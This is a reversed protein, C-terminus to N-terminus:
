REVDISQVELQRSPPLQTFWMLVYRGRSGAPLEVRQVADADTVTATPDGWAARQAHDTASVVIDADWGPRSTITIAGVDTESGLDLILGVGPKGGGFARSSYTESDWATAPDGDLVLAAREDHESRDGDPDFARADVVPVTIPEAITTPAPTSPTDRATLFIAAVAVLVAALTLAVAIATRRASRRQAWQPSEAAVTATPTGGPPTHDHRFPGLAAALASADPRDEPHPAVARDVLAGMRPPVDRRVRGITPIPESGLAVLPTETLAARAPQGTLMEHLLLGLAFVDTREDDADGRIQEPALYRARGAISGTETHEADFVPGLGLDVIRARGQPGVTISTPRLAHHVVGQQHVYALTAAVQAGIEATESPSLRGREAIYAALDSGEVYEVVAYARDTDAIVEYIAAIGPHSLRSARTARSRFREIADPDRAFLPHLIRVAVQRDLVPDDACWVSTTAGHGLERRLRYRGALVLGPTNV